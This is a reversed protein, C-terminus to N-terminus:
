NLGRIEFLYGIQAQILANDSREANIANMPMFAGVRILVQFLHLALEGGSYLGKIGSISPWYNYLAAPGLILGGFVSGFEYNLSAKSATIGAEFELNVRSHQCTDGSFEFFFGTRTGAVTSYGANVEIRDFGFHPDSPRGRCTMADVESVLILSVGSLMISLFIKPM